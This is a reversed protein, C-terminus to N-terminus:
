FKCDSRIIRPAAAGHERGEGLVKKGPWVDIRLGSAPTSRLPLLRFM